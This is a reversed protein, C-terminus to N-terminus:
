KGLNSYPELINALRSIKGNRIWTNERFMLFMIPTKGIWHPAFCCFFSTGFETYKWNLFHFNVISLTNHITSSQYNQDIQTQKATRSLEIWKKQGNWERNVIVVIDHCHCYHSKRHSRLSSLASLPCHVHGEIVKVVIAFVHSSTQCTVIPLM